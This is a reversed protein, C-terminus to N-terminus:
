EYEESGEELEKALEELLIRAYEFEDDSFKGSYKRSLRIGKWVERLVLERHEEMEIVSKAKVESM